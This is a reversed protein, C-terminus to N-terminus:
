FQEFVTMHYKLPLNTITQGNQNYMKDHTHRPLDLFVGRKL